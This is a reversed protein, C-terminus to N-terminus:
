FYLGFLYLCISYVIPVVMVTQLAIRTCKSMNLSSISTEYVSDIDESLETQEHESIKSKIDIEINNEINDLKNHVDQVQGYENELRSLKNEIDRIKGFLHLFLKNESKNLSEQLKTFNNKNLVKSQRNM